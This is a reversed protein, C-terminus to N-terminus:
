LMTVEFALNRVQSSHCHDALVLEGLKATLGKSESQSLLESNVAIVQQEDEGHVVCVAGELVTIAWGAWRSRAYVCIKDGLQLSEVLFHKRRLTCIYVQNKDDAHRFVFLQTDTVMRSGRKIEVSINCHSNYQGHEESYSSFGQDHGVCCIILAVCKANSVITTEVILEYSWTRDFVKESM